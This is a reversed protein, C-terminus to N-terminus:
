QTAKSRGFIGWMYSDETAKVVRGGQSLTERYMNKGLAFSCLDLTFLSLFRNLEYSKM